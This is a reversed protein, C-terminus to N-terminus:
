FFSHKAIGSVRVNAKSIEYSFKPGKISELTGGGKEALSLVLTITDEIEKDTNGCLAMYSSLQAIFYNLKMRDKNKLGFPNKVKYFSLYQSVAKKLDTIHKSSSLKVFVWGETQGPAFSILAVKEEDPMILTMGNEFSYIYGPKGEYKEIITQADKEDCYLYDTVSENLKNIKM